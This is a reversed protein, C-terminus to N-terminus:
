REGVPRRPGFKQFLGWGVELVGMVILVTGVVRPEIVPVEAGALFQRLVLGVVLLLVGEAINRTSKPLGMVGVPGSGGNRAM